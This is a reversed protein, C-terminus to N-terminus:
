EGPGGTAAAGGARAAREKRREVALVYNIGGLAGGWVVGCVIAMTLVTSAGIGKPEFVSIFATEGFVAQGRGYVGISANAYYSDEPAQTEFAVTVVEGSGAAEVLDIRQEDSDLLEGALDLYAVMVVATAGEDAMPAAFSTSMRYLAKPKVEMWQTLGSAIDEDSSTIVVGDDSMSLRGSLTSWRGLDEAASLSGGAIMNENRDAFEIGFITKLLIAAFLGLIFAPVVWRMWFMVWRGLKHRANRNIEQYGAEKMVWGVALVAVLGFLPLAFGGIVTDMKALMAVQPGFSGGAKVFGNLVFPLGMLWLIVGTTTAARKRSWKVEDRLWAISPEQISIASSLAGFALLLFFMAGFIGGTGGPMKEFVQPLVLFTLGFTDSGAASPAMGLAFAAPFIAFGALISSSTNGMTCALANAPIGWKDKIYSGYILMAGMGLSLTFFVQGLADVWAQPTLIGEWRPRMYFELGQAAGPLTVSRVVVIILLVFLTPIMFRCAREIGRQVGKALVFSTIFVAGAHFVFVRPSGLFNVLFEEADVGFYLKAMSALVFFLVWATIVIYYSYLFFPGIIGWAGVDRGFPFGIRQFAGLPDRKTHRGLTWEAIMAFMAVGILLVLYPVLFSGGGHKGCLYPFRWINGLGVETGLMALIMGSHTKWTERNEM